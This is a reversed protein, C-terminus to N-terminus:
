LPNQHYIPSKQHYTLSKVECIRRKQYFIPSIQCLKRLSQAGLVVVLLCLVVVFLIGVSKSWADKMNKHLHTNMDM